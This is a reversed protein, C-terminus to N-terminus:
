KNFRSKTDDWAGEARHQTDKAADRTDRGADRVNDRVDRYADKANAKARKVNNTAEDPKLFVYLGLAVAGAIAAGMVFKKGSDDNGSM